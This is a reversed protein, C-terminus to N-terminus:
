AKKARYRQVAARIVEPKKERYARSTKLARDKNAAYWARRKEDLMAANKERYRRQATANAQRRLIEDLRDSEQPDLSREKNIRHYYGIPYEKIM